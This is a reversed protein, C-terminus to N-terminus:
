LLFIYGKDKFDVCVFDIAEDLGYLYETSEREIDGFIEHTIKEFDVLGTTSENAYARNFTSVSFCTVLLLMLVSCFCIIKKNM